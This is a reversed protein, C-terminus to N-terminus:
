KDPDGIKSDTWHMLHWIEHGLACPDDVMILSKYISGHIWIQKQGDTSAMAANPAHLMPGSGEGELHITVQPLTVIHEQALPTACGALLLFLILWWPLHM